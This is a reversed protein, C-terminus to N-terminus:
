FIVTWRHYETRWLSRSYFKTKYFSIQSGIWQPPCTQRTDGDAHTWNLIKEQSSSGAHARARLLCSIRSFEQM